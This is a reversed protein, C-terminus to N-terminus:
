RGFREEWEKRSLTSLSVYLIEAEDIIMVGQDDFHFAGLRVVTSHPYEGPIEIEDGVAIDGWTATTKPTITNM